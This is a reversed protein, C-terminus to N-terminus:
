APLAGRLRGRDHRGDLQGRPSLLGVPAGARVRPRARGSRQDRLPREPRAHQGRLGAPGACHRPPTAVRVWNSKDASFGHLLVIADGRGGSLYEIHLGAADIGHQELGAGRLEARQALTLVVGPLLFYFAALLTPVALLVFLLLRTRNKMSVRASAPHSQPANMSRLYCRLDRRTLEAPAAWRRM